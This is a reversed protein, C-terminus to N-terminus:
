AALLTETGSRLEVRIRVVELWPDANINRRETAKSRSCTLNKEAQAVPVQYPIQEKWLEKFGSEAIQMSEGGSNEPINRSLFSNSSSQKKM